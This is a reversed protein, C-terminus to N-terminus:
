LAFYPNRQLSARAGNLSPCEHCTRLRRADRFADPNGECEHWLEAVDKVGEPLQAVEASALMSEPCTEALRAVLGLGAGDSDPIAVVRQFRMLPFWWESRWSSAGPVGLAPLNASWCSHCDSEGECLYVAESDWESALWLGYLIPRDGQRWRFRNEGTLALRYRVARVEGQEGKYPVAVCPKGRWEADHLGWEQLRDIPLLKALAYQELTLGQAPETECPEPKAPEAQPSPEPRANRGRSAPRSRGALELLARWVDQQNCGGFCHAVLKGNKESLHLSPTSDDHLLCRVKYSGDAQPEREPFYHIIQELTLPERAEGRRPTPRPNHM